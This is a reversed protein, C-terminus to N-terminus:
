DNWRKVAEVRELIEKKMLEMDSTNCVKINKTRPFVIVIAAVSVLSGFMYEPVPARNFIQIAVSLILFPIWLVVPLWRVLFNDSRDHVTGYTIKTKEGERFVEGRVYYARNNNPIGRSNIFDCMMFKGSKDCYFSFDRGESDSEHCEGQQSRLRSITDKLSVDIELTTEDLVTYFCNSKM